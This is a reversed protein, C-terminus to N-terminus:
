PLETLGKAWRQMSQYRYLYQKTWHDDGQRSTMLMDSDYLAGDRTIWRASGDYLAANVGRLGGSIGNELYGDHGQHSVFYGNDCGEKKMMNSCSLVLPSVGLDSKKWNLAIYTMKLGTVHNTGTWKGTFLFHSVGAGMRRWSGDFHDEWQGSTLRGWYDHAEDVDPKDWNWDDYEGDSKPPRVFSPCFMLAPNEVYGDMCLTGLPYVADPEGSQRPGALGTPWGSQIDYTGDNKPTWEGGWTQQEYPLLGNHDNAFYAMQMYNQRRGSLCDIRQAQFRAEELAPLLMAALVAIISIVVLLEILTFRQRTPRRRPKLQCAVLLEILTFGLMKNLKCKRM